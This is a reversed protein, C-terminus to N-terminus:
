RIDPLLNHRLAYATADARGRANIKAYLNAIHREVTGLSIVLMEAIERNTSGGAILALVEAERPTLGNPLRPRSAGPDRQPPEPMPPQAAALNLALAVAEELPIARGATWATAFISDGLAARAMASTSAIAEQEMPEAPSGTLERLLEAAGGLTAAVHPQGTAAAVAAFEALCEAVRRQEGLGHFLTTSEALLATARNLDGQRRTIEGLNGLRAAVEWTDGRQRALALSEELLATAGADDGQQHLVLALNNLSQGIRRPDGLSRLIALCEEHLDRGRSLDSQAVAVLALNNLATAAGSRDGLEQRLHLSQELLATARPYDGMVQALCGAGNFAKARLDAPATTGAALSREILRRGEDCRGRMEWSRWLAVGIRLALDPHGSQLSWDIAARVNDHDATLRRLWEGQAPGHLAQQAQEALRVFYAAHRGRASEADVSADLRETAYERITELLRIRSEGDPTEERRLLGHEALASLLDFILTHRRLELDAKDDDSRM